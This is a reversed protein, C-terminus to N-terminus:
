SEVWLYKNMDITFDESVEVGESELLSRQLQKEIAGGQNISLYGEKNVVRWWPVRDEKVTLSRLIGGVQRPSRSNGALAAVVGYSLVKGHPIQSVIELVRERFSKDM